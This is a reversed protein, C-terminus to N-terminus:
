YRVSVTTRHSVAQRVALAVALSKVGDEGSAAPRGQGRAATNFRRVGEVYLDQKEGLTVAEEGGNRVLTVEAVIGQAMADNCILSGETGHVELSTRAGLVTFADYFSALTGSRLRMVGMVADEVGGKAMGQQASAAVVEEVEDDLVFRLTDADHPTVDLIAGAGADTRDLRWTQLEKELYFAHLIRAALPHGIAGEAILQRMKRHWSANRLHHNTGLVVGVKRCVDVMEVADELSTALPKECLVHKGARAAALTQPKHLNNTTSIYVVDVAPDSLLDHLDVYHSAIGHVAAFKQGREESSSLVAAVYSDAGANIASATFDRAISSAGILGWGLKKEAIM